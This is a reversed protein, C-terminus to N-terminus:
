LFGKWLSRVLIITRPIDADEHLSAFCWWCYECPKVCLKTGAGFSFSSWGVSVAVCARACVSEQGLLLAARLTAPQARDRYCEPSGKGFALSRCNLVAGVVCFSMLQLLSHM